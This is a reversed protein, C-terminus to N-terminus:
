IQIKRHTQSAPMKEFVLCLVGNEMCTKCKEANTVKPLRVSRHLHGKNREALLVRFGQRGQSPKQELHQEKEETHHKTPSGSPTASPTPMEEKSELEKQQEPKVTVPEEPLGSAQKEKELKFGCAHQMHPLARVNLTLVNNHDVTIDIHDKPVGPLSAEVLIADETEVIDLPIFKKMAKRERRNAQSPQLASSPAVVTAEVESIPEFGAPWVERAGALPEVEWDASWDPGFVENLRQLLYNQWDSPSDVAAVGPMARASSM